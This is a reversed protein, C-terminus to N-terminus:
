LACGLKFVTQLFLDVPITIRIGPIGPLFGSRQGVNKRNMDQITKLFILNHAVFPRLGKSDHLHASFDIHCHSQFIALTKHHRVAYILGSMLMGAIGIMSLFVQLPKFFEVKYM